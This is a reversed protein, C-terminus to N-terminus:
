TPLWEFKRAQLSDLWAVARDALADVAPYARNAAVTAKLQRRLDAGPNLEPSRFPLWALAVSARAAAARAAHPHHPPATDWVPLQPVGPRRQGLAAVAAAGDAGRGRQRVPHALEGSGVNLMGPIVRRADRGSIVV